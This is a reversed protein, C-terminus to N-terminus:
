LKSKKFKPALLFALAFVPVSLFASQITVGTSFAILEAVTNGAGAVMLSLGALFVAVLQCGTTKGLGLAFSLVGSGEPKMRFESGFRIGFVLATTFLVFFIAMAM